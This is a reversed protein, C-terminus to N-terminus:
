FGEVLLWAREQEGRSLETENPGHWDGELDTHALWHVKDTCGDRMELRMAQQGQLSIKRM